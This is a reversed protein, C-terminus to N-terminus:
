GLSALTQSHTLERLAAWHRPHPVKAGARIRSCAALSLGTVEAIEKLSFVDLRPVVERKFWARDRGEFSAGRVWERNRRHHEANAEGRKRGAQVSARPDKGSAAQAALAKRAAAIARLGRERRAKPLCTECYRRRRKLVPAGCTACATPILALSEPRPTTWAKSAYPRPQSAKRPTADLPSQAATVRQM